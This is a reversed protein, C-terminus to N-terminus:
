SSRFTQRPRAPIDREYTDNSIDEFQLALAPRGGDPLSAYASGIFWRTISGGPPVVIEGAFLELSHEASLAAIWTDVADQADDALRPRQTSGQGNLLRYRVLVIPEESINTVRIPIGFGWITDAFLYWVGRLPLLHLPSDRGADQRQQASVGDGPKRSRRSRWWSVIFSIVILFGTALVACGGDFWPNSWIDRHSDATQAAGVGVFASGIVAMIGGIADPQISRHVANM